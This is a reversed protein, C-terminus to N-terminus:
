DTIGIQRFFDINSIEEDALKDLLNANNKVFAKIADVDKAPLRLKSLHRRPIRPNDKSIAM